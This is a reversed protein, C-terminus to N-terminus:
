KSRKIETAELEYQQAVRELFWQRDQRTMDLVDARTM